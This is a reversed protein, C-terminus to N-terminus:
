IHYEMVLRDMQQVSMDLEDLVESLTPVTTAREAPPGHRRYLERAAAMPALDALWRAVTPVKRHLTKLLSAHSIGPAARQITPISLMAKVNLSGDRDQRWAMTYVLM